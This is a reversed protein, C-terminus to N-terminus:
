AHQMEPVIWTGRQGDRPASACAQMVREFDHDIRIECGSTRRFRAITKRLSRSLKFENVPLVMRPDPSWWLIPQGESFWPFIGQSYAQHLREQTLEGGACLLGPAESEAPWANCTDPFPDSDNLWAIMAK